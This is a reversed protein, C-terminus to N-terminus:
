NAPVESIAALRETEVTGFGLGGRGWIPEPLSLKQQFPRFIVGFIITVM